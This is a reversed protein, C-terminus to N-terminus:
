LKVASTQKRVIRRIRDQRREGADTQAVLSGREPLDWNMFGRCNKAGCNCTIRANVDFELPFQYDYTVEEEAEIDRQSYVVVRKLHENPADGDIIKAFCNPDCSHNMYRAYGGHITADIVHNASVRFQYDQIRREEYFKERLNATPISVYEGVYEAVLAGKKIAHDAFLGWGHVNSGRVSVTSVLSDSSSANSEKNIRDREKKSALGTSLSLRSDVMRKKSAEAKHRRRLAEATRTLTAEKDNTSGDCRACGSESLTMIEVRRKQVKKLISLIDSERPTPYDQLQVTRDVRAVEDDVYKRLKEDEECSRRICPEFKTDSLDPSRISVEAAKAARRVALAGYYAMENEKTRIFDAEVQERLWDGNELLEAADPWRDRLERFPDESEDINSDSDVDNNDWSRRRKSGSSKNQSWRAFHSAHSNKIAYIWDSARKLMGELSELIESATKYYISGPPNFALSNRCLQRVDNGFSKLNSYQGSLVKERIRGFDIPYKIIKHYGEISEPVPKAFLRLPDRRVLGVFIGCTALSLCRRQLDDAEDKHEKALSQRNEDEQNNKATTRTLRRSNRLRSHSSPKLPEKTTSEPEKAINQQPNSADNQINATVDSPKENSRMSNQKNESLELDNKDCETDSSTKSDSESGSEDSSTDADINTSLNTELPPLVACPKWPQVVLANAIAKDGEKQNEFDDYKLNSRSLMITQVKLSEVDDARTNRSGGLATRSKSLDVVLKARRCSICGERSTTISSCQGCVYMEKKSQDHNQEKQTSLVRKPQKQSSKKPALVPVTDEPVKAATAAEILHSIDDARKSPETLYLGRIDKYRKQNQVKLAEAEKCVAQEEKSLPIGVGIRTTLLSSCPPQLKGRNEVAPFPQKLIPCFHNWGRICGMCEDGVGTAIPGQVFFHPVTAQVNDKRNIKSMDRNPKLMPLRNFRTDQLLELLVRNNSGETNLRAPRCRISAARSLSRHRDLWFENADESTTSENDDNNDENNDVPEQEEDSDDEYGEMMESINKDEMWEICKDEFEQLSIDIYKKRELYNTKMWWTAGERAIMFNKDYSRPTKKFNRRKRNLHREIKIRNELLFYNFAHVPKPRVSMSFPKRQSRHQASTSDEIEIDSGADDMRRQKIPSDISNSLHDRSRSRARKSRQKADSGSRPRRPSSLGSRTVRKRRKERTPESSISADDEGHDNTSEEAMSGKRKRNRGSGKVCHPCFWQDENLTQFSPSDKPVCKPHYVKPCGDCCVVDGVELCIHCYYLNGDDGLINQVVPEGGTGDGKTPLCGVINPINGETVSSMASANGNTSKGSENFVVRVKITKGEPDTYSLQDNVNSSASSSSPPQTAVTSTRNRTSRRSPYRSQSKKKTKDTDDEEQKDHIDTENDSKEDGDQFSVHSHGNMGVLDEKSDQGEEIVHDVGGEAEEELDIDDDGDRSDRSKSESYDQVSFANSKNENEEGVDADEKDGSANDAQLASRTTRRGARQNGNFVKDSRTSRREAGKSGTPSSASSDANTLSARTFRAKVAKRASQRTM